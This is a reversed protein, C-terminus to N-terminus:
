SDDVMTRLAEPDLLQINLYGVAIFGRATMDQLVRNVSFRSLNAMTGLEAQSVFAVAPRNTPDHFRCGALRLLTALCRRTSDTIMLDAAINALVNGYKTALVAMARWWQPHAELLNNVDKGSIVAVVAKSRSEMSANRPAEMILPLFGFWTGAHLIHAINADAPGLAPIYAVAGYVVAFIASGTEDANFITTRAEFTRLQSLALLAHRFEAPTDAIDGKQALFARALRPDRAEAESLLM